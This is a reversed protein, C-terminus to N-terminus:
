NSLLPFHHSYCPLSMLLQLRSLPDLSSIDEFEEDFLPNDYCLTYDDNFDFLPNSFTVDFSRSVSDDNGLSVDFMRTGPILDNTEIDRPNFNIKTDGRSLTELHERFLLDIDVKREGLVDLIPSPPSDLPMSCELNSNSTVEYEKPISILDDVSYNIFEDIERASITSIVEDRMLFTDAPEMTALFPIYSTYAPSTIPTTYRDSLCQEKDYTVETYDDSGEPYYLDVPHDHNSNRLSLMEQLCNLEAQLEAFEVHNSNFQEIVLKILETRNLESHPLSQPPTF